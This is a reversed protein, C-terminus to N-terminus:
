LIDAQRMRNVAPFYPLRLLATRGRGKKRPRRGAAIVTGHVPPDLREEELLDFCAIKRRSDLALVTVIAEHRSTGRSYAGLPRGHWDATREGHIDHTLPCEALRELGATLLCALLLTVPRLYKM